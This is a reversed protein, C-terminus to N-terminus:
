RGGCTITVPDAQNLNAGALPVLTGAAGFVPSMKTVAPGYDFNLGRGTLNDASGVSITTQGAGAPARLTILTNTHSVICGTTGAPTGIPTPTHTPTGAATTCPQLQQSGFM